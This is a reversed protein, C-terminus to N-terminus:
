MDNILEALSFHKLSFLFTLFLVSLKYMQFVFLLMMGCGVWGCLYIFRNPYVRFPYIINCHYLKHLNEVIILYRLSPVMANEFLFNM